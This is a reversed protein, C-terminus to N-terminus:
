VESTKSAAKAEFDPSQHRTVKLFGDSPLGRLDKRGWFSVRKEARLPKVPMDHQILIHIIEVFVFFLPQRNFDRRPLTQSASRRGNPQHNLLSVMYSV